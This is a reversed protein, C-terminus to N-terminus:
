FTTSWKESFPDTIVPQDGRFLVNDKHLDLDYKKVLPTLDQLVKREDSNNPSASKLLMANLHISAPNISEGWSGVLGFKEHGELREMTTVTIHNDAGHAGKVSAYVDVSYIKPYLPNDQNKLVIDLFEDYADDGVSVKLVTGNKAYVQSYYGVGIQEWGEKKLTAYYERLSGKAKRKRKKVM